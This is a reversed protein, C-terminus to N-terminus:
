GGMFGTWDAHEKYSGLNFRLGIFMNHVAGGIGNGSLKKSFDFTNDQKFNASLSYDLYLTVREHLKFQPSLGLYVSFIDDVNKIAPDRPNAIKHQKAFMHTSGVGTHFLLGVHNTKSQFNCLNGVNIVAQLSTRVLQQNDSGLGKFDLLDYGGTGMLGIYPNFMYRAGLQIAQFQHFGSKGSSPQLGFHNGFGVEVSWKNYSQAYSLSMSICASLILFYSRM